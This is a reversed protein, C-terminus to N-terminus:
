PRLGSRLEPNEFNREGSVSAETECCLCVLPGHLLLWEPSDRADAEVLAKCIASLNDFNPWSLVGTAKYRCTLICM